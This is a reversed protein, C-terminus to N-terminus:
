CIYERAPGGNRRREVMMINVAGPMAFHMLSVPFVTKDNHIVIGIM